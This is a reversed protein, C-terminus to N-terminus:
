VYAYIGIYTHTYIALTVSFLECYVHIFAYVTHSLRTHTQIVLERNIYTYIYILSVHIHVLSVRQTQTLIYTCIPLSHTHTNPSNEGMREREGERLLVRVCM